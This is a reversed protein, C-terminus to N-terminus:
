LPAVAFRRPEREEAARCTLFAPADHERTVRVRHREGSVEALLEVDWVGDDVRSQEVLRLDWLGALGTRERVAAEAAQVPFPYACRGRFCGLDIRGDLYAGVVAAAEERGVRGFFLGEPFCVLNGAFRDGGVHTAQWVWADPVVGGLARCLEQGYRACCRDRVGHTCVLLLPHELPEGPGEGTALMAPLDLDRLDGHTDLELTRFRVGREPATGYFVRVRDRRGGGRPKVLCLRASGLERLQAAIRDGLGGAFVAADLAEYPWAGGYEVLLWRTIRSATGALPEERARAAEACLPRATDLVRESV